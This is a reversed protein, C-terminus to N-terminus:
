YASHQPLYTKLMADNDSLASLVSEFVTIEASTRDFLEKIQPNDKGKSHCELM